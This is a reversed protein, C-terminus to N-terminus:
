AKATINWKEKFAALIKQADSKEDMLACLDMTQQQEVTVSKMDIFYQITSNGGLYTDGVTVWEAAEQQGRGNLREQRVRTGRPVRQRVAIPIWTTKMEEVWVDQKLYQLLYGATFYFRKSYASYTETDRVYRRFKLDAAQLKEALEEATPLNNM